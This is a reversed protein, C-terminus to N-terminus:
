ISNIGNKIVDWLDQIKPRFAILAVIAIVVLVGVFIAYETTAQGSQEQVINRYIQRWRQLFQARKIYIRICTKRYYKDINSSIVQLLVQYKKMPTKKGPPISVDSSM